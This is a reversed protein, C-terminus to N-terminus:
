TNTYKLNKMCQVYYVRLNMDIKSCKKTIKIAKAEAEGVEFLFLAFFVKNQSCAASDINLMISIVSILREYTKAGRRVGGHWRVM